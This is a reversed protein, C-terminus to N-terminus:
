SDGRVTDAGPKTVPKIFDRAVAEIAKWAADAFLVEFRRTAMLYDADLREPYTAAAVIRGIVQATKDAARRNGAMTSVPEQNLFFTYVFGGLAGALEKREQDTICASPNSM